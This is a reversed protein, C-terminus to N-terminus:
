LSEWWCGSYVYTGWVFWTGWRDWEQNSWGFLQHRTFDRPEENHLKGLDGQVHRREAGFIKGLVRNKFVTLTFLVLKADM